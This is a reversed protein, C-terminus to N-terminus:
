LLTEGYNYSPFFGNIQITSDLGHFCKGSSFTCTYDQLQITSSQFYLGNNTQNSNIKILFVNKLAISFKKKNGWGGFFCPSKKQSFYPKKGFFLDM